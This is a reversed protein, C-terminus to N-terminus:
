LASCVPAAHSAAETVDIASAPTECSSTVRIPAFTTIAIPMVRIPAPMRQAVWAGTWPVEQGVQDAREDDRARARREREDRDRHGRELAHGLPLRAEGGAQQVRGGLEAGRDPRRDGRADGRTARVRQETGPVSNRRRQGAAKVLREPHEAAIASIAGGATNASTRRERAPAPRRQGSPGGASPASHRSRGRRGGARWRLPAVM